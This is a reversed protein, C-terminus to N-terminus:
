KNKKSKKSEDKHRRFSWKNFGKEEALIDDPIVTTPDNPSVLYNGLYMSIEQFCEVPPKIRQFGDQGLSPNITLRYEVGLRFKETDQGCHGTRVISFIPTKLGIFASDFRIDQTENVIKGWTRKNLHGHWDSSNKSKELLATRLKERTTYMNKLSQSPLDSIISEISYCIINSIEVAPILFGCFGIIRPSVTYRGRWHSKTTGPVVLEEPMKTLIDMVPKIHDLMDGPLQKRKEWVSLNFYYEEQKRIFLLAPDIGYSLAADYYDRFKSIIRM